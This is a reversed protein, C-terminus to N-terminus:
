ALREIWWSRGRNRRVWPEAEIYLQCGGVFIPPAENLSQLGKDRIREGGPTLRFSVATWDNTAREERRKEIAPNRGHKAWARLRQLVLSDGFLFFEEVLRMNRRLLDVPRLWERTALTGLLEYDLQSLRLSSKSGAQPFFM